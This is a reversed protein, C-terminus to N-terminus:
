LNGPASLGRIIVEVKRDLWGRKVWDPGPRLGRPLVEALNRDRFQRRTADLGTESSGDALQQVRRAAMVEVHTIVVTDGVCDLGLSATQEDLGGALLARHVSAIQSAFSQHAWPVSMLVGALGPYDEMLQWFQQAFDRLVHPWPGAIGTFDCETSIQDLCIRLLDDRSTVTRYLATTVVGLRAAVQSLSFDGIGIELAARVADDRSFRPKPGTRGPQHM